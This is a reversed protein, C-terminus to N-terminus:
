TIVGTGSCKAVSLQDIAANFQVLNHCQLNIAHLQRDLTLFFAAAQQKQMSTDTVVPPSSIGNDGHQQALM